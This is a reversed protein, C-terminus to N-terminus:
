SVLSITISTKGNSTDTVLATGRAGDYAGTGGTIAIPADHAREPTLGQQTLIGHGLKVWITCPMGGSGGLITCIARSVGTDDGIVNSHRGVPDHLHRQRVRELM